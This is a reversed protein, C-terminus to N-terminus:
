DCTSITQSFFPSVSCLKSVSAMLGKTSSPHTLASPVVSPESSPMPMAACIATRVAVSTDCPGMSHRNVTSSSVPREPANAKCGPKKLPFVNSLRSESSSPSNNIPHAPPISVTPVNFKVGSARGAPENATLSSTLPRRPPCEPSSMLLFRPFALLISFRKKVSADFSNSKRIASKLPPFRRFAM